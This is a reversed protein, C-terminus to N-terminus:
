HKPRSYPKTRSAHPRDVCKYTLWRSEDSRDVVYQSHRPSDLRAKVVLVPERPDMPTRCVTMSEGSPELFITVVVEFVVIM